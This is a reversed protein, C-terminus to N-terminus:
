DKGGLAVCAAGLGNALPSGQGAFFLGSLEGGLPLYNAM